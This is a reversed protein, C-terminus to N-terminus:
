TPPPAIPARSSPSPPPVPAPPPPPSVPAAPSPPPLPAPVPELHTRRWAAANLVPAAAMIRGIVYSWLLISLSGGIAGFAESKSEFSRSIWVVTFIHLAEVGVGVMIAGPLFDRWQAGDPHPFVKWSAFLWLGAPVAMYLATGVVWAVFSYDELVSLVQVLVLSALVALLTGGVLRAQNRRKTRPLLWVLQHVVVLVKIFSRTGSLLAFGSVGLLTLRTWLSQNGIDTITGALLGSIGAEDLMEPASRGLAEAVFGAAAVIFFVFPVVFLFVRFAVAGALIGGAVRADQEYSRFAVDIIASGPRRAEAQTLLEEGRAKAKNIAEARPGQPRAQGRSRWRGDRTVTAGPEASRGLAAEVAMGWAVRAEASAVSFVPVAISTVGAARGRAAVAQPEAEPGRLVLDGLVADPVLRRAGDRDGAVVASRIQELVEGGLGWRDAVVPCANLVAYVAVDAVDAEPDDPLATLLAWVVEPGGDARAAAGDRIVESVRGLESGATAWILAQDAHRGATRLMGDHGGAVLVPLSALPVDLHRGSDVDLPQGTAVRRVLEILAATRAPADRRDVKAALRAESGGAALGLFM